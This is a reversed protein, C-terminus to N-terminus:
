LEKIVWLAGLINESFLTLEGLAGQHNGLKAFGLTRLLFRNFEQNQSALPFVCENDRLGM